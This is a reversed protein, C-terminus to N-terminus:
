DIPLLDAFLMACRRFLFDNAADSEIRPHKFLVATKGPWVHPSGNLWEFLFDLRRPWIQM